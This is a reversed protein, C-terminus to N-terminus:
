VEDYDVSSIDSEDMYAKTNSTGFRAGKWVKTENCKQFKRDMYTQVEKIAPGGRGYTSEYWTKFEFTLGPKTITGAPDLVIRDSIFESIYDQKERYKDSSAVVSSCERLRGETEFARDVLMASMVTKWGDLKNVLNEDTKFQYPTTPDTSVPKETFKSLFDVVSIRRWTGHDQTDIKMFENSCLVLKFQPMFTLPKPQYLGRAQIPDIGSTLNKMVGVNIREDKDPEQMVAYRVGKLAVLEPSTGGVKARQGTIISLAVTQYYSGLVKEMLGMLMSKGNSGAGIFMHFKQQGAVGILASSLHDLLYEYMEQVPMLQHLFTEIETVVAAHKALNLPVFDYGTCKSLYDEPLGKRFMKDKFDVVGNKFCLLYPNSDLREEFDPDWFMDKAETMINKKDNTRGLREVIDLLKDINKNIQALQDPHDTENFMAKKEMNKSAKNSYIERLETSISKRLPTGSDCETWFTGSYRYWINNKVSVCKYEGKKLTALIEAIDYDGCGARSRKKDDAFYEIKGLQQDIKYDVSSLRIESYRQPAHEKVWFLISEKQLGHPNKQDFGNWKELLEPLDSFAFTSCQASFVAWVIFLRDDTNRLAWGVRMWNNYSGSGYFSEPLSMVYEYTEFLQMYDVSAITELWQDRMAHLEDINRANAVALNNCDTGGGRIRTPSRARSKVEGLGPNAELVRMFASTYFFTPHKNYRASLEPLYPRVVEPQGLTKIVECEFDGDTNDYKMKYVMTLRYAEHLPKASGYMQWNTGGNSIGEDLVDSWTNTIPLHRLMDGMKELIQKRLLVQVKREASIGIIIHLGDKVIGKELVPNIKSKELVFVNFESTDDFQYIKKLEDAYLAIIDDICDRDYKRDTCEPAFRFDMDVLIPGGNKLQVETLHEITCNEVIETHYRAMFQSYDGDPIHYSGGWIGADKNGIRTNTFPTAEGQEKVQFNRLYNQFPASM